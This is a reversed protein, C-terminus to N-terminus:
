VDGEPWAADVPKTVDAHIQITGSLCGYLQELTRGGGHRAAAVRRFVLRRAEMDVAETEFGAELWAASQVHGGGTNAWWPRHKLASEPLKFGLVREVQRFTLAVVEGSQNELFATLPEYKSM